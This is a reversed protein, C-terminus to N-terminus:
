STAENEEKLIKKKFSINSIKNVSNKTHDRIKAIQEGREQKNAAKQTKHDTALQKSEDITKQTIYYLTITTSPDVKTKENHSISVVTDAIHNEYQRKARVPALSHNLNSKEITSQAVGLEAGVVCPVEIWYKREERIENITEVAAQALIPAASALGVASTIKNIM